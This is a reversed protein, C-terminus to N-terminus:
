EEELDVKPPVWPGASGGSTESPSTHQIRYAEQRDRRDAGTGAYLDDASDRKGDPAMGTALYDNGPEDRVSHDVLVHELNTDPEVELALGLDHNDLLDQDKREM